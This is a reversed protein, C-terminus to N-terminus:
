NEIIQENNMQHVCSICALLYVEQMYFQVFIVIHVDLLDAVVGLRAIQKQM